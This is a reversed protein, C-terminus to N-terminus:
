KKNNDKLIKRMILVACVPIAIYWGYISYTLLTTIKDPEPQPTLTRYGTYENM